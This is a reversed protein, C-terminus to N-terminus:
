KSATGNQHVDCSCVETHIQPQLIFYGFICIVHHSGVPLHWTTVFIQLVLRRLLRYDTHVQKKM